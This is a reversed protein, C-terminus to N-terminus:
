KSNGQSATDALLSEQWFALFGPHAYGQAKLDRVIAAALDRQGQGLYARALIDLGAPSLSGRRPALASIAAAPRESSLYAVGYLTARESVAERSNPMAELRNGLARAMRRAQPADGALRALLIAQQELRGDLDARWVKADEDTGLTTRMAAAQAHATRAQGLPGSWAALDVADIQGALLYEM